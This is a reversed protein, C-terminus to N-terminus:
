SSRPRGMPMGGEDIGHSASPEQSSHTPQYPKLTIVAPDSASTEPRTARLESIAMTPPM